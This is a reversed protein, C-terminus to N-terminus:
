RLQVKRFQMYTVGALAVAGGALQYATPYYGYSIAWLVAFLPVTNLWLSAVAVGVQSAGSNWLYIAFGSAFAAILVLQSWLLPSSVELPSAAGGALVAFDPFLWLLGWVLLTWMLMSLSAALTRRLQSVGPAFWSQSKLSFLTWVVHSLLITAEGRGFNVRGVELSECVLILGGVVTLGLGLGFGPDLKAGTSVRVTVTAIIPAAVQVVAASIPDSWHIGLMYLLVFGGMLIGLGTFRWGGVAIALAAKGEVVLLTVGLVLCAIITRVATLPVIDFHQLLFKSVPLNAGWLIGCLALAVFSYTSTRSRM